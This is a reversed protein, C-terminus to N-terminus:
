KLEEKILEIFDKVGVTKLNKEKDAFVIRYNKEIDATDVMKEMVTNYAIKQM